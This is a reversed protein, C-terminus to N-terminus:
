EYFAHDGITAVYTRTRSAYSRLGAANFFLANPMVQAGDMVMKAAAVSEENPERYISGTAAPTFQNKQFLM